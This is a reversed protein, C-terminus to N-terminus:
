ILRDENQIIWSSFVGPRNTSHINEGRPEATHAGGPWDVPRGGPAAFCARPAAHEDGLGVLVGGLGRHEDLLPTEQFLPSPLEPRNPGRWDWP